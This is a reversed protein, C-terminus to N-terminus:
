HSSVAPGQGRAELALTPDRRGRGPGGALAPLRELKSDAFRPEIVIDRGELYGRDAFDSLLNKKISDFLPSPSGNVLIGVKRPAQQASSPDCTSAIM